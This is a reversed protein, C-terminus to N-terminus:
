RRNQDVSGEAPFGLHAIAVPHEGGHRDQVLERPDVGGRERAEDERSLHTTTSEPSTSHM